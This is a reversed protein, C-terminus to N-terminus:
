EIVIRAKLGDITTDKKLQCEWITLVIWGQKELAIKNKNDNSINMNIKNLWFERRTKPIVFKNCGQHGHWFCGNVFIVTQYKPLVIDPTGPLNTDHLRYRFGNAFLSKRVLIEPITNKGKIQSMNFSRTEKSHVDPM